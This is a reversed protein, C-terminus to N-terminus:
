VWADMELCGSRSRHRVCSEWPRGLRLEERADERGVVWWLLARMMRGMARATWDCSLAEMGRWAAREPKSAVATCAQTPAVSGVRRWYASSADADTM